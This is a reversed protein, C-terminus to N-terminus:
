LFESFERLKSVTQPLQQKQLTTLLEDVSIPPNKLALRQNKIALCCVSPAMDLQYYIFDDPPLVDIDYPSLAAKPFDRLNFTVIADAGCRIAAALVHRDDPDPLALTKILPEYGTVKADKVHADMLTRVRKLMEPKSKNGRSLANTWEDHIHDTWHAKFLDTMALRMLTDRLPAPYLVCADYIVTFKSM